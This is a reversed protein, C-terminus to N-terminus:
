RGAVVNRRPLPRWGGFASIDRAGALAVPECVFGNVRTGDALEISGIALPPPVAAVFRGFSEVDLSWVEVEIACGDGDVRVLGPKPPDLALDYLRYTPSTTTTTVLRAGLETLQWNLPQGRLHAGVVALHCDLAVRPPPPEDLFAAGLDLVARDTFAPAVFSVGFPLGNARVGSPVAVACLDLPNVFNTYTGLERSVAVSRALAEEVTPHRAITPLLLVDIAEWVSRTAAQLERLRGFARFVSIGDHKAASLVIERVAPDVEDPHQEVFSGFAAQREAVLASDYLLAAAAHFPALDVDVLEIGLARIRRVATDFCTRADDDGFWDVTHPVGVRLRSAFWREPAGGDDVADFVRAADAITNAILAVADFSPSAPVVGDTSIRRRTPKLGVLGCCAAPVRGSGATDTALAVTAEGRAVAVASGSSSGGAIYAPDIPNRCVGFAPSRTGSLGTAFQDLNTKGAFVFGADLMREVVRASRTPVYSYGPAGATTPVGAVDINDKVAFTTAGPPLDEDAVRM